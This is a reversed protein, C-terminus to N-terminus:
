EYYFKFYVDGIFETMTINSLEFIKPLLNYLIIM